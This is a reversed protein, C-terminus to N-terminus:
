AYYYDDETHSMEKEIAMAIEKDYKTSENIAEQSMIANTDHSVSDSLASVDDIGHNYRRNMSDYGEANEFQDHKQNVSKLAESKSIKRAYEEDTHINSERSRIWEDYYRNDMEVDSLM